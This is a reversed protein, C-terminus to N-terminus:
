KQKKINSSSGMKMLLKIPEKRTKKIEQHLQQQIKRPHTENNSKIITYKYMNITALQRPHKTYLLFTPYSYGVYFIFIFWSNRARGENTTGVFIRQKTAKIYIYIFFVSGDIMGGKIKEQLYVHETRKM